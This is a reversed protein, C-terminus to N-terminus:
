RSPPYPSSNIRLYRSIYQTNAIRLLQCGIRYITNTNAIRLLQCGIRYITSPLTGNKRFSLFFLGKPVSGVHCAGAAPSPRLAPKGITFTGLGRRLGDACCRCNTTGGAGDAGNTGDTGDTGVTGREAGDGGPRRAAALATANDQRGRPSASPARVPPLVHATARPFSLLRGRGAPEAQLRQAPACLVPGRPAMRRHRRARGRWERYSAGIAVAIAALCTYLCRPVPRM